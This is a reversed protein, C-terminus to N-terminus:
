LPSGGPGGPQGGSGGAGGEDYNQRARERFTAAPERYDYGPILGQVWTGEVYEVIAKADEAAREPDAREFAVTVVVAADEGTGEREIEPPTAGEADAVTHADDLRRELTEFWGSQVVEGVDEGEVVADIQPARVVVRYEHTDGDNETATATVVTEFPTFTTEFETADSEGDDSQEFSPHQRFAREVREDTM